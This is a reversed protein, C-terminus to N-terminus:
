SVTGIQNGTIVSYSNSSNDNGEVRKGLILFLVLFSVKICFFIEWIFFYLNEPIKNRFNHYIDLFRITIVIKGNNFTEGLRSFFEKPDWITEKEIM